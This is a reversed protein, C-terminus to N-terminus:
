IELVCVRLKLFDQTEERFHKRSIDRFIMCIEHYMHCIKDWRREEWEWHYEIKATCMGYRIRDDKRGGREGREALIDCKQHRVEVVVNAIYVVM